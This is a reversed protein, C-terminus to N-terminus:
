AGLGTTDGHVRDVVGETTTLALAGAATVGDVRPAVGFAAGALGLRGVLVDDATATLPPASVHGAAQLLAWEDVVVEHLLHVGLVRLALLADDLRPRSTGRDEGLHDAVGERHVVPLLVDGDVDGLGHDAVLEALE